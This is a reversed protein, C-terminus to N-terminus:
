AQKERRLESRSFVSGPAVIASKLGEKGARRARGQAQAPWGAGHHQLSGDDPENPEDAEDNGDDARAADTGAANTWPGNACGCLRAHRCACCWCPEGELILPAHSIEKTSVSLCIGLYPDTMHNLDYATTERMILRTLPSLTFCAAFSRCATAIIHPIPSTQSRTMMKRTRPIAANM